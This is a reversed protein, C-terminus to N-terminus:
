MSQGQIKEVEPLGQVQSGEEEAEQTAPIKLGTDQPRVKCM